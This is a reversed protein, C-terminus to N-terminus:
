GGGGGAWWCYVLVALWALGIAALLLYKWWAARAARDPIGDVVDVPETLRPDSPDPQTPKSM